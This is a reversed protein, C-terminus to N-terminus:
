IKTYKPDFEFLELMILMGTKVGNVYIRETILDSFATDSSDYDDFLKFQEDSLSNSFKKFKEEMTKYKKTKLLDYIPRESECIRGYYLEKLVSKM